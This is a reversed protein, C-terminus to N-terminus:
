AKGTGASRYAAPLASNGASSGAATGGPFYLDAVSGGADALYARDLPVSYWARLCNRSDAVPPAAKRGTEIAAKKIKEKIEFLNDAIM